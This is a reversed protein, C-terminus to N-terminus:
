SGLIPELRHFLPNTDDPETGAILMCTRLMRRHMAGTLEADHAADGQAIVALIADDASSLDHHTEGTIAEIDAVTEREFWARHRGHNLLFSPIGQLLDREWKEFATSTPLRGIDNVLKRLGSEEIPSISGAGMTLHHDLAVGEYEAVAELARRPISASELLGEMWDAGQTNADMFWKSAIGSLQLFNATHYCVVRHDVPKGSAQEYRRYLAPIDGMNEYPHRGRFCALDWHTDGVSAIEFDTLAAVNPGASMFQGADGAIFGGETRHQPVNRRLWSQIFALPPDIVNTAEGNRYYRETDRLAVEQASVLERFGRIHTFESVPVAHMQALHDMYSLMAQWREDSMTTPNHIATHIYGIDRADTDIFEMVIAKPEEIWGYVHPVRIGNRELAQLILMENHLIFPNTIPRDGRVFVNSTEGDRQYSVKWQPRWRAERQMDTVEGGLHERIWTRIGAHQKAEVEYLDPEPTHATPENM